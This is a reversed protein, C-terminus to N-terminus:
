HIEHRNFSKHLGVWYCLPWGNFHLAQIDIHRWLLAGKIKNRKSKYQNVQIACSGLALEQYSIINRKNNPGTYSSAPTCSIRWLNLSQSCGFFVLISIRLYVLRYRYYFQLFPFDLKILLKGNKNCLNCYKPCLEQTKPLTCDPNIAKSCFLSNTNECDSLVFSESFLILQKRIRSYIIILLIKEKFCKQFMQFSKGIPATTTTTTTATTTTPEITTTTTTPEAM